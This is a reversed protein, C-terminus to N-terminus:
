LAIPDAGVDRDTWSTKLEVQLVFPKKAANCIDLVAALTPIREGDINKLDPHQQGYVSSRDPAGIDYAALEAVTLDKIRPTPKTLYRGDAGRVIEPKLRYDHFVVVE